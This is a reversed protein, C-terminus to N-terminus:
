GEIEVGREELFDRMQTTQHTLKSLLLIADALFEELEQRSLDKLRRRVSQARFESELPLPKINLEM